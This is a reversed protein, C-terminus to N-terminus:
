SIAVDVRNRLKSYKSWNGTEKSLRGAVIGPKVKAENAFRRIESYTFLGNKLFKNWQSQPIIMESAFKDAEKEKARYNDNLNNTDWFSIYNEKKSHKIVHGIEHFLTFWLIDEMKHKPTVMITVKNANIWRTAGNVFTNKFYPLFVLAIGCEALINVLKSSYEKPELLNLKRIKPLSYKLRELSFDKTEIKAAEIEGFRLWAKLNEKSVEKKNTQRFAINEIQYVKSLAEFSAVSFYQLINEAKSRTTTAKEVLKFKVLQPYVTYKPVIEKGKELEKELELRAATEDYNKQLTNWFKESTGFVISLKLATNPSIPKKGKIIENITKKHLGIRNSLETQQMGVSELVDLLSEGPHIAIPSIFNNM